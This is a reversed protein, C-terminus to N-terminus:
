VSFADHEHQAGAFWAPAAVYDLAQGLACRSGRADGIQVTREVDIVLYRAEAAHWRVVVAGLTMGSDNHLLSIIWYHGTVRHVWIHAAGSQFNNEGVRMTAINNVTVAFRDAAPRTNRM